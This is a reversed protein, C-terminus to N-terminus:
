SLTRCFLMFPQPSCSSEDMMDVAMAPKMMPVKKMFGFKKAEAKLPMINNAPIWAMPPAMPPIRPITNMLVRSALFM